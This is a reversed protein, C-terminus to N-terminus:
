NESFLDSKTKYSIPERIKDLVFKTNQLGCGMFIQRFEARCESCFLNNIPILMHCRKIGDDLDGVYQVLLMQFENIRGCRHCTCGYERIIFKKYLQINPIERSLNCHCEM